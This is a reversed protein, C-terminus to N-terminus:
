PAPIPWNMSDEDEDSVNEEEDQVGLNLNESVEDPEFDAEDDTEDDSEYFSKKPEVKRNGDDDYGDGFVEAIQM